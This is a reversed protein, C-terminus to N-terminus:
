VASRSAIAPGLAPAPALDDIAAAIGAPTRNLAVAVYPVELGLVESLAVCLQAVLLSHGGADIIDTDPHVPRDLAATVVDLVAALSGGPLLDERDHTAPAAATAQAARLSERDVKGAATLPLAAVVHIAPVAHPPLLAAAHGYLAGALDAEPLGGTYDPDAAVHAILRGAVAVVACARVAPHATLIHEVEGLTLRHGRIKVQDDTRGLYVLVGDARRTALDGTHYWRRGGTDTTFRAATAAPSAAYGRAVGIGGVVIEGVAGPPQPRGHEDVVQVTVGPLPTGIHVEQGPHLEGVTVAVSAETPGYGNFFRRQPSAWREVLRPPCVEGVAVVTRLAPLDDSPLAALVSPTLTAVDVRHERLTRALTPGGTRATDPALVLTAGATLTMLIEAMAADWSWAAFQLVRTEASVAFRRSLATAMNIVGPHEILVGKPTGTSGSTFVVYCLPGQVPELGVATAAAAPLLPSLDPIPDAARVLRVASTAAMYQLRRAPWDPDLYLVAGGARWVGLVQVLGDVSRPRWVGVVEDTVVGAAALQAAVADARRALEQYTVATGTADIVAVADPAAGAQQWILDAVTGMTAISGIRPSM